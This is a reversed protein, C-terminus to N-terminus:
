QREQFIAFTVVHVMARGYDRLVYYGRTTVAM